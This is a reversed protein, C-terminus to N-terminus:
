WKYTQAALMCFCYQKRRESLILTALRLPSTYRMLSGMDYVGDSGANVVVRHLIKRYFSRSFCDATAHSNFDSPCVIGRVPVDRGSRPVDEMSFAASNKERREEAILGVVSFDDYQQHPGGAPSPPPATRCGSRGGRHIRRETRRPRRRRRRRSITRIVVARELPGASDVRLVTAVAQPRASLQGKAFSLGYNVDRCDSSQCREAETTVEPMRM